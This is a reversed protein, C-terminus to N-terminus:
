LLQKSAKVLLRVNNRTLGSRSYLVLLLVVVRFTNFNARVTKLGQWGTTSYTWKLQAKVQKSPRSILGHATDHQACTLAPSRLWQLQTWKMVESHNPQLVTVPWSPSTLCTAATCYADTSMDRYTSRCKCYGETYAILGPTLRSSIIVRRLCTNYKAVATFLWWSDQWRLTIPEQM